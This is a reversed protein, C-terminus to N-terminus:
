TLGEDWLRLVTKKQLSHGPSNKELPRPVRAWSLNRVLTKTRHARPDLFKISERESGKVWVSTSYTSYLTSTKSLSLFSFARRITMFSFFSFSRAKMLSSLSQSDLLLHVIERLRMVSATERKEREGKERERERRERAREGRESERKRERGRECM